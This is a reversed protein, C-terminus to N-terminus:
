AGSDDDRRRARDRYARGTAWVNLAAVGAVALILLVWGGTGLEIGVM